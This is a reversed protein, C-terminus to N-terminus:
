RLEEVKYAMVGRKYKEDPTVYGFWMRALAVTLISCVFAFIGSMTGILTGWHITINTILFMVHILRQKALSGLVRLRTRAPLMSLLVFEFLINLVGFLLVADIM